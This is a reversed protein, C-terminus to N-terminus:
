RVLKAQPLLHAEIREKIKKTLPAPKRRKMDFCVEITKQIACLIGSDAEFMRQEHSMSKRGLGIWGGKIIML